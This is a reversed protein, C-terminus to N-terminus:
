IRPLTTPTKTRVNFLSFHMASRMYDVRDRWGDADRTVSAMRTQTMHCTSCHALLLDKGKAQPLLHWTQYFSIDNWRVMGKQLAFDYSANQDGTLSM